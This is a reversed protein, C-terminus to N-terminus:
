RPSHHTDRSFCLLSDFYQLSVHTLIVQTCYLHFSLLSFRFACQIMSSNEQAQDILTKRRSFINRMCSNYSLLSICPANLHFSWWHIRHPLSLAKRIDFRMLLNHICIYCHFLLLNKYWQSYWKVPCNMTDLQYSLHFTMYVHWMLHLSSKVTFLHRRILSVRHVIFSLPPIVQEMREFLFLSLFFAICRLVGITSSHM